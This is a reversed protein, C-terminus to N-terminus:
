LAVVRDRGRDKAAYLGEDARTLLSELPEEDGGWPAVGVSVTIGVTGQDGDIPTRAIARRLREAATMAGELGTEPLLVAFEEGGLRGLIEEQRLTESTIRGLTALAQDGVDHGHTDNIDKFWDIDLMLLSFPHGYRKSRELEAEALELFHRRNPLGTLSDTTALQRLQNELEIRRSIDLGLGVVVSGESLDLRYGSLDFSRLEGEAALLSIEVRSFGQTFIELFTSQLRSRDSEAVLGDFACGALEEATRGTVRALQENWRQLSGDAGIVYFIGPLSNIIGNEKELEERLADQLRRRETVDQTTGTIAGPSGDTNFRCAGQHHVWRLTGDSRQIRQELDLPQGQRAQEFQHALAPRDAPHAHDLFDAFSPALASPDAGLIRFLEDSWVMTRTDPALEWSGIQAIAQAEALRRHAEALANEAAKRQSICRIIGVFLRPNELGTDTVNLEIPFPSGDAHVAQLEREFGFVRAEGTEEYAAMYRDHEAAYPEPMLANLKRGIMDAASHGFMREAASNFSHIIGGADATVIADGAADLVAHLQQTQQQLQAEAAKRQSIDRVIGVFLPPNTGTNTVNLEIPFRRGDRRIAELERDLGIVKAEASEQYAAMYADHQRADAEPMLCNIKAGTIEDARYGFMAEAAPNFQRIFGQDDSIIIADGAARLVAELEVQGLNAGRAANKGRSV